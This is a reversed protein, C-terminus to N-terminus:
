FKQRISGPGLLCVSENFAITKTVVVVLKM